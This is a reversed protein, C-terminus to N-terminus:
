VRPRVVPNMGQMVVERDAPLQAALEDRPHAPTSTFYYGYVVERQGGAIRTTRTRHLFHEVEDSTVVTLTPDYANHLSEPYGQAYSVFM